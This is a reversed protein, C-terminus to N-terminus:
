FALCLLPPSLPLRCSLVGGQMSLTSRGGRWLQARNLIYFVVLHDLAVLVEFSEQNPLGTLVEVLQLEFDAQPM